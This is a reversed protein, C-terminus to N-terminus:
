VVGVLVTFGLYFIILLCEVFRKLKNAFDFKFSTSVKACTANNFDHFNLM